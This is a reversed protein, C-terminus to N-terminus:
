RNRKRSLHTVDKVAGVAGGPNNMKNMANYVAYYLGMGDRANSFNSVMGAMSKPRINSNQVLDIFHAKASELDGGTLQPNFGAGSFGQNIHDPTIISKVQEKGPMSQRAREMDYEKKDSSRKQGGRGIPNGQPDFKNPDKFSKKGEHLGNIEESIIKKIYRKLDSEKLLLKSM